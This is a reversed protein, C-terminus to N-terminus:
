FDGRGWRLFPWRSGSKRGPWGMCPLDAEVSIQITLSGGYFRQLIHFDGGNRSGYQFFTLCIVKLSIPEANLGIESTMFGHMRKERERRKRDLGSGCYLCIIFLQIRSVLTDSHTISVDDITISGSM